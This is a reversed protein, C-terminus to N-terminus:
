TKARKTKWDGFGVLECFGKLILGNGCCQGCLGKSVENKHGYITAEGWVTKLKLVDKKECSSLVTIFIMTMLLIGLNRKM